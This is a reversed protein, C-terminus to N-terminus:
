YYPSGTDPMIFVQLATLLDKGMNTACENFFRPIAYSEGEPDAVNMPRQSLHTHALCAGYPMGGNAVDLCQSRLCGGIFLVDANRSTQLVLDLGRLISKMMSKQGALPIIDHGFAVQSASQTLHNVDTLFWTLNTSLDVGQPYISIDSGSVFLPMLTQLGVSLISKNIIRKCWAPWDTDCFSNVVKLGLLDSPAEEDRGPGSSAAGGGASRCGQVNLQLPPPQDAPNEQQPPPPTSIQVNLQLPPPQHLPLQEAPNGEQQLPPDAPKDDQQLPAPEAPNEEQQLKEMKAENELLEVWQEFISRQVGPVDGSPIARVAAWPINHRVLERVRCVFEDESLAAADRAEIMEQLCAMGGAAKARKMFATWLLDAIRPTVANLLITQQYEASLDEEVRDELDQVHRGQLQGAQSSAPGTPMVPKEDQPKHGEPLQEAPNGEQQLPPDAPAPLPPAPEAPNEEQQLPAPEAPNGEQQLPPDDAPQTGATTPHINVWDDSM